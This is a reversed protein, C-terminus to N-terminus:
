VLEFYGVWTSVSGDARTIVMLLEHVGLGIKEALEGPKFTGCDMRIYFSHLEGRYRTPRVPGSQIRTLDSLPVGDLFHEVQISELLERAEQLTMDPTTQVAYSGVILADEACFRRIPRQWPSVSLLGWTPLLDSTWVIGFHAAHYNAHNIGNRHAKIWSQVNGYTTGTPEIPPPEPIIGEGEEYYITFAVKGPPDPVFWGHVWIMYTGDEPVIFYGKEHGSATAAQMILEFNQDYVYLDLDCDEIKPILEVSVELGGHLNVEFFTWQNPTVSGEFSGSEASATPLMAMSAFAFCFVFILKSLKM